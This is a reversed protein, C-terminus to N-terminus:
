PCSTVQYAQENLAKSSEKLFCKGTKIFPQDTGTNAQQLAFVKALFALIQRHKLVDFSETLVGTSILSRPGQGPPAEGQIGALTNRRSGGQHFPDSGEELGRNELPGM